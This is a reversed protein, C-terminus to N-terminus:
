GLHESRARLYDICPVCLPLEVREPQKSRNDILVLRHVRGRNRGCQACEPM